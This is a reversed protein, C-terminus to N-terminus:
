ASGAERGGDRDALLRAAMGARMVRGSPARAIAPATLVAEPMQHLGIRTADLRALYAAADFPTGPAPVVVAGIRRGGDGDLPIAAADTVGEVATLVADLAVLDTETQGTGVRDEPPGLVEMTAPDDARLRGGIGTPQFGDATKPREVTRHKPGGQWPLDPVMAGRVHIEGATTGSDVVKGGPAILRTEMLAPAGAVRSPARVAGVPLSRGDDGDRRARAVLGHEGLLTVDVIRHGRPPAEEFRGDGVAVITAERRDRDLREALRRVLDSPVLIHTADNRAAEEVLRDVSDPLGIVLRAGAVLWPVLGVGIGRLGSLAFPTVVVAGPGIGAEIGTMLGVATWHTHSRPMPVPLTGDDSRLQTWAITAAHDGAAGRREIAPAPGIGEAEVFVRELEVLGDPIRDGACFVFRINFLEAAVDRMQVGLPIDLVEAQTAIAKAGLAALRETLDRERLALPMPAVVLGARWLALLVAVAESTPPMQVGVVTDPKLALMAFFAAYHDVRAQLEAWTFSRAAGTTWRERDDFDVLALRDPTAAAHRALMQDLTEHGPGPPRGAQGAGTGGDATAETMMAGVTEGTGAGTVIM